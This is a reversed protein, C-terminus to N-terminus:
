LITERTKTIALLASPTELKRIFYQHISVFIYIWSDRIEINWKGGLKKEMTMLFAILAADYNSKSIGSDSYEALLTLVEKEAKKFEPLSAVLHNVTTMIGSLKKEHQYRKLLPKLEPALLIIKKFFTNSVDDLQGAM